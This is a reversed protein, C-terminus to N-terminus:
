VMIYEGNIFRCRLIARRRGIECRQSDVFYATPTFPMKEYHLMVIITTNFLAAMTADGNIGGFM